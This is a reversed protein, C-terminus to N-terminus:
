SISGVTGPGSMEERRRISLEEAMRSHGPAVGLAEEVTQIVTAATREFSMRGLREAGRQALTARLPQETVALHVLEAAVSLDDGDELWLAADGAVEPMGGARRAVVPLGFHFAELLPVCFGEHESMSLLVDAAAYAANLRPQALDEVFSVNRAGAEALIRELRRLYPGDLASGVCLLAAGPAHRRQFLAFARLLLDHRKHPSLRGVALVLPRGAPLEATHDVLELRAPDLVIPTIRTETAGAGSLEAANFRSVAACVRSAGVWSPLQDRGLQCITAVYPQFNWFYHAPTINHYVLMKPGPLDLVARMGPVFGTYHVILLDREGGTLRALPAASARAGPAIEAAYIEGRIGRRALLDRYLSAQVNTADFPSASGLVQDVRTM